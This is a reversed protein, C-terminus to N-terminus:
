VGEMIIFTHTNLLQHDSQKHLPEKEETLIAQTRWCQTVARERRRSNRSKEERSTPHSCLMSTFHVSLRVAACACLRYRM